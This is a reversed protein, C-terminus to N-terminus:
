MVEISAHKSACKAHMLTEKKVEWGKGGPDDRYEIKGDEGRFSHANKRFPYISSRTETVVRVPKEKRATPINCFSCTIM